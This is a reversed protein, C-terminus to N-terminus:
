RASFLKIIGKATQVCFVFTVSLCLSLCRGVAQVTYVSLTARYFITFRKFGVFRSIRTFNPATTTLLHIKIHM